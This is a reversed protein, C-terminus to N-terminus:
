PYKVPHKSMKRRSASNPVVSRKWGEWCRWRPLTGDKRGVKKTEPPAIEQIRVTLARFMGLVDYGEVAYIEDLRAILKTFGHGVRSRITQITVDQRSPM